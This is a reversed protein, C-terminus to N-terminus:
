ADRSQLGAVNSDEATGYAKASEELVNIAQDLQDAFRTAVDIATEANSSFGNAADQSVRDFAMPFARLSDGEDSLFRRVDDRVDELKQKLTLVHEPAVQMTMPGAAAPIPMRQGDAPMGVFPV